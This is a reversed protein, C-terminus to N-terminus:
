LAVVQEAHLCTHLTKLIDERGTFLPNRQFPVLWHPSLATLSAELFQRTELDDLCLHRALELVMGRTAPLVDGQEWRGIVHRHTGVLNALQQQKLRRRTRFCKLLAGFSSFDKRNTLMM